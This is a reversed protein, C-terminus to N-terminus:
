SFKERLEKKMNFHSLFHFLGLLFFVPQAIKEEKKLTYLSTDKPV